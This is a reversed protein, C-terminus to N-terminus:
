SPDALIRITKAHSYVAQSSIHFQSSASEVLRGRRCNDTSISKYFEASYQFIAFPKSKFAGGFQGPNKILDRWLSAFQTTKSVRMLILLLDRGM